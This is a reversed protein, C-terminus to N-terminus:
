VLITVQWEGGVILSGTTPHDWFAQDAREVVLGSCLGGLTPDATSGSGGEEIAQALIDDEFFQDARMQSGEVSAMAIYARVVCSIDKVQTSVRGMGQHYVVGFKAIEILPPTPLSVPYPSVRYGALADDLDSLNTLASALANRINLISSM